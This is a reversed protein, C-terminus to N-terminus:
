LGLIRVIVSKAIFGFMGLGLAVFLIFYGFRGAKSQKALDHIIFLMYGILVTLGVTLSINEFEAIEMSSEVQIILAQPV